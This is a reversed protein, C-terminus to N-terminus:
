RRATKAPRTRTWCVEPTGCTQAVQARLSAAADNSAANFAAVIDQMNNAKAQATKEVPYNAIVKRSGANVLKAVLRVHVKPPSVSNDVEYNRVDTLLSIDALIGERDNSVSMFLNAQQFGDVLFMQLSQPMPQAWSAGNYYTLQNASERVAIRQTDLGPSAEPLSISLSAPLFSAPEPKVQAKLVFLEDPDRPKQVLACASTSLLLVTLALARKM